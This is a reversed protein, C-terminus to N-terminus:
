KASSIIPSFDKCFNYIADYWDIHDGIEESLMEIEKETLKRELCEDAVTQLDDIVLRYITKDKRM